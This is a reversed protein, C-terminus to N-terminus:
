TFAGARWRGCWRQWTASPLRTTRSCTAARGPELGAQILARQAYMSIVLVALNPYRQLLRPLLHLIPYPNANEASTPVQVDLLLVDVAQADMLPELEEGYSATGVIEIDLERGLRYRYGDIIGPHDDLIAVRITKSPM